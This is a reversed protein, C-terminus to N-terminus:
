INWVVQASLIDVSADYDGTLTGATPTNERLKPDDIFLHSYGVDVGLTPTAQYSFGLSVWIRDEGPIRATRNSDPIPSEDFATGARFTWASNHRYDVGVAFRWVDDWSEDIVTDPQLSDYQIRLEDFNDWGTWTADAMVSWTSNIDHWISASATQPLDIDARVGTKTFIGFDSFQQQLINNFRAKGSLQQQIKSRYSLGVRTASTPEYLLGVNFGGAWNDGEVKAFGDSGQPVLGACLAPDAGPVGLAQLQSQTPLCLSGQDINQTLKADIYQLNVGAGISFQSNVRYAISPNFNLTKVESEIAQYRGKWDDDYETSLGFPVTVGIGAYLNNGLPTSFYFNPVIGLGGADGGNGGSTPFGAPDTGSGDFKASTNVLHVGGVVQRQLRTMGAPNFYITSADNAFASAGAFANGMQSASQEILAFGSAMSNSSCLTLIGAGFLRLPSFIAKQKQM